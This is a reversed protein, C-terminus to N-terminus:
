VVDSDSIQLTTSPIGPATGFYRAAEFTANVLKGGASDQEQLTLIRIRPARTVATVDARAGASKLAECGRVADLTGVREVDAAQVRRFADAREDLIV